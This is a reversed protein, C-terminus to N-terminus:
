RSTIREPLLTTPPSPPQARRRLARGRRRAPATRSRLNVEGAGADYQSTITISDARLVQFSYWATQWAQDINLGDIHVGPGVGAYAATAQTSDHLVTFPGSVSTAGTGGSDSPTIRIEVDSNSNALDTSSSWLFETRVGAPSSALNTTREGGSAPTATNWTAGGDTSYQVAVSVPNSGADQLTYGILANGARRAM